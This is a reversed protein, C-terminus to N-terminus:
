KWQTASSSPHARAIGRLTFVWPSQLQSQSPVQNRGSSMEINEQLNDSLQRMQGLSRQFHCDPFCTLSHSCTGQNQKFKTQSCCGDESWLAAHNEYSAQTEMARPWIGQLKWLMLLAPVVWISYCATEWFVSVRINAYHNWRYILWRLGLVNLFILKKFLTGAKIPTAWSTPHGEAFRFTAPEIGPWPVLRPQLNPGQHLCSLSAVWRHKERVDINRERETEM